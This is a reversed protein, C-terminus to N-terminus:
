IVAFSLHYITLFVHFLQTIVRVTLMDLRVGARQPSSIKAAAFFAGPARCGFSQISPKSSAIRLLRAAEEFFQNTSKSYGDIVMMDKENFVQMVFKIM